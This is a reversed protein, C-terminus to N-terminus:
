GGALRGPGEALFERRSVELESRRPLPCWIGQAKTCTTTRCKRRIAGNAKRPAPASSEKAKKSAELAAEGAIAATLALAQRRPTGVGVQQRLSSIGHIGGATRTKAPLVQMAQGDECRRVAELIAQLILNIGAMLAM